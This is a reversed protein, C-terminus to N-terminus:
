TPLPRILYARLLLLRWLCIDFILKFDKVKKQKRLWKAHLKMIKADNFSSSRESFETFKNLTRLKLHHQSRQHRGCWIWWLLRKQPSNTQCCESHHGWRDFNGRDTWWFKSWNVRKNRRWEITIDFAFLSFCRLIWRWSYRKWYSIYKWGNSWAM